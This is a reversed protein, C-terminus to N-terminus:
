GVRREDKMGRKTSDIGEFFCFGHWLRKEAAAPSLNRSVATLKQVRYETKSREVFATGGTETRFIKARNRREADDAFIESLSQEM